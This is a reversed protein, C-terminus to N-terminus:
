LYYLHKNYNIKNYHIDYCRYLIINLINRAIEFIWLPRLRTFIFMFEASRHETTIEIEHSLCPFNLVASIIGSNSGDDNHHTM